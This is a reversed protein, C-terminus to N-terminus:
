YYIIQYDTVTYVTRSMSRLVTHNAEINQCIKPNRVNKYLVRIITSLCVSVQQYCEINTHGHTMSVIIYVDL